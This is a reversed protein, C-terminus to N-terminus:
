KLSSEPLRQGPHLWLPAVLARSMVAAAEIGPDFPIGPPLFRNPRIPPSLFLLATM